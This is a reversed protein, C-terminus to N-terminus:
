YTSSCYYRKLKLKTKIINIKYNGWALGILISLIFTYLFKGLFEFVIWWHFHVEEETSIELINNFIVMATIESLLSEGFM